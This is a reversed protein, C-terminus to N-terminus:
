RAPIQGGEGAFSRISDDPPSSRMRYAHEHFVNDPEGGSWASAQQVMFIQIQGRGLRMDTKYAGSHGLYGGDPSTSMGVGYQNPVSSPTQKTRLQRVAEKSLYTRGEFVGDNLLMQCFRAMDTATSFLGGGPAPYRNVGDLPYSLFGIKVPELGNKDAKVRYSRALRKLQAANPRFTTDIMGLPAFLRQQLFEEYPQGSAIEIIRGATDIGENSYLYKTGPDFLLPELLDHEVSTKLPVLDIIQRDTKNLFGMGSTHSLIERVRVAHSPPVLTGDAQRVKINKFEPIFKEVPDDLSVKGEDVLMLFAAGTVPKTMSAIWFLDDVRMPRNQEIDSYGVAELLQISDKDAVLMVAGAMVKEDVFHQLKPSLIAVNLSQGEARAPLSVLVFAVSAAFGILRRRCSM